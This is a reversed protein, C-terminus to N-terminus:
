LILVREKVREAGLVNNIFSQHWGPWGECRGHTKLDLLAQRGASVAPQDKLSSSDHWGTECRYLLPELMTLICAALAYHVYVGQVNSVRCSRVDHQLKCGNCRRSVGHGTFVLAINKSLLAPSAQVPLNLRGCVNGKDGDIRCPSGLDRNAHDQLSSSM